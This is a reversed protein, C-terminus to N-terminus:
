TGCTYLTYCLVDLAICERRQRYRSYVVSTNSTMGPRAQVGLGPLEDGYRVHGAVVQGAKNRAMAAVQGIRFQGDGM